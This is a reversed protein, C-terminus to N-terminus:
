PTLVGSQLYLHDAMRDTPGVAIRRGCASRSAAIIGTAIFPQRAKILKDCASREAPRDRGWSTGFTAPLM